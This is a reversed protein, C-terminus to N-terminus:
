DKKLILMYFVAKCTLHALWSYNSLHTTESKIRAWVQSRVWVMSCKVATVDYTLGSQWWPRFVIIKRTKFNWIPGLSSRHHLRRSTHSLFSSFILYQLSISCVFPASFSVHAQIDQRKRQPYRPMMSITFLYRM